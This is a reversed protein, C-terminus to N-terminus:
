RLRSDECSNGTFNYHMAGAPVAKFDEAMNSEYISCGNSPTAINSAYPDGPHILIGNGTTNSFNGANNEIGVLRYAGTKETTFVGDSKAARLFFGSPIVKDESTVANSGSFNTAFDNQGMYKTQPSTSSKVNGSRLDIIFLRKERRGMTYDGITFINKEQIPSPKKALTAMAKCLALPHITKNKLIIAAFKNQNIQPYCDKYLGQKLAIQAKIQDPSPIEKCVGHLQSIPIYSFAPSQPCSANIPNGSAGASSAFAIFIWVSFYKINKYRINKSM